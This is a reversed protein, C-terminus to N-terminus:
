PSALAVRWAQEAFRGQMLFGAQKSCALLMRFAREHCFYIIQYLDYIILSNIKANFSIRNM